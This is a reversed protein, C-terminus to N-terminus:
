IVQMYPMYDRLQDPKLMTRFTQLSLTSYDSIFVVGNVQAHEDTLLWDYVTVMSRYFLAL